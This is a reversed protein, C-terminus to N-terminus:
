AARRRSRLVMFALAAAIALVPVGTAVAGRYRKWFGMVADVYSQNRFRGSGDRAANGPGANYAAIARATDGPFRQLLGALYHVGYWIGLAPSKALAVPDLTANLTRVTDDYVQMPGYSRHGGPEAVVGGGAVYAPARGHASERELIGHVLAPDITVGYAPGWHAVAKSVEADWVM